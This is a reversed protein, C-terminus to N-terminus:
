GTVKLVVMLSKVFSVEQFVHVCVSHKSKKKLTFFDFSVFGSRERRHFRRFAKRGFPFQLTACDVEIGFNVTDEDVGTEILVSDSWAGEPQNPQMWVVLECRTHPPLQAKEVPLDPTGGLWEGKLRKVGACVYGNYNERYRSTGQRDIEAQQRSSDLKSKRYRELRENVLGIIFLAFPSDAYREAVSKIQELLEMDDEPLALHLNTVVGPMEACNDIWAKVNDRAWLHRWLHQKASKIQPDDGRLAHYAIRLPDDSGENGQGEKNM